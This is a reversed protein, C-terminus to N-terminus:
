QNVVAISENVANLLSKISFPKTLYSVLGAEFNHFSNNSNALASLVIIPIVGKIKKFTESNIMEIFESGDIKPMMFDTIILDYKHLYIKELAKSASEATDVEFGGYKTLLTELLKLTSKDEDIILVKKRKMKREEVNFTKKQKLINCNCNWNSSVNEM